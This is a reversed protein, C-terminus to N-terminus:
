VGRDVPLTPTCSTVRILSLTKAIFLRNEAFPRVRLPNETICTKQTCARLPANKQMSTRVIFFNNQKPKQYIIMKCAPTRSSSACENTCSSFRSTCENAYSSFRSTNHLRADALVSVSFRTKPNARSECRFFDLGRGWGSFTQKKFTTKLGKKNAGSQKKTKGKRRKSKSTSPLSHTSLCWPPNLLRSKLLEM